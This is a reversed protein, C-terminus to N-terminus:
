STTEFITYQILIFQNKNIELAHLDFLEDADHNWFCVNAHM